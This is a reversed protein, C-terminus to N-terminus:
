AAPIGFVARNLTEDAVQTYIATTAPSAHRAARQTTRLDGGSARLVQTCFHHRLAHPVGPVGARDMARRIATSVSCRNVHGSKSSTPFWYGSRPMTAALEAILPHMPVSSVVGGKGTVLIEDGRFDEGRVKAIEHVRLGAFAGLLVYARTTAARGDACAALVRGVEAPSLPHPVGRPTRPRPLRSSPDDERRGTDVLFSYFARIQARYTALTSRKVPEGDKGTLDALWTVLEFDDATMPNVSDALRRITYIRGQITRDSHGAALGRQAWAALVDELGENFPLPVDGNDRLWPFLRIM